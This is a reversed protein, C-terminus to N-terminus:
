VEIRKWKGGSFRWWMFVARISHDLAAGAWAGVAGLHFAFVMLAGGGVRMTWMGITTLVLVWRTDGAGRLGGALSQNIAMGPMAFAWVRVGLGGIRIVEPDSIFLGVLREGLAFTVGGLIVMSILCYRQTLFGAKQALDPRRAGLYQGVLATSAVSFGFSPMFAFEEVRMALSHAAYVTTGLSSIVITYLTMAGRMQVAEVLSPLGIRLIRRTEALDFRFSQRLDYKLIGKGRILLSMIIAAAAFNSVARGIGAGFVGLQPFIWYGQMLPIALSVGIVQTVMTVMMPTRTDGAGRMIAQGCVAVFFFITAPAGVLVYNRGLEVVDPQARFFVLLQDALFWLILAFVMGLVVALLMAQRLTRNALEPERAGVRRAVIATAGVSVAAFAVEPLHIVNEALSAATVASAGLRGLFFTTVWGLVSWAAQELVVPWVLKLVSPALNDGATQGTETSHTV